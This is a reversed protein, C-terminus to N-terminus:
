KSNAVYFMSKYESETMKLQKEQIFALLNVLYEEDEKKSLSRILSSLITPKIESIHEKFKEFLEFAKKANKENAAVVIDSQFQRRTNKDM